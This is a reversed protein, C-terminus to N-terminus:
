SQTVEGELETHTTVIKFHWNQQFVRKFLWLKTMKKLIANLELHKSILCISPFLGSHLLKTNLYTLFFIYLSLSFYNLVPISNKESLQFRSSSPYTQRFRSSSPYPTQDWCNMYVINLNKKLLSTKTKDSMLIKLYPPTPTPLLFFDSLSCQSFFFQIVIKQQTHRLWIVAPKTQNAFVLIFCIRM